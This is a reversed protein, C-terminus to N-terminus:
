RRALGNLPRQLIASREWDVRYMKTITYKSLHNGDQASLELWKFAESFDQETGYGDYYM